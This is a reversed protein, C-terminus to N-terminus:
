EEEEDSEAQWRRIPKEHADLDRDVYHLEVYQYDQSKVLNDFENDAEERSFYPGFSCDDTFISYIPSDLTSYIEATIESACFSGEVELENTYVTGVRFEVYRDKRPRKSAVTEVANLVGGLYNRFEETYDYDPM